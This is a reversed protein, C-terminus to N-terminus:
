GHKYCDNLAASLGPRTQLYDEMRRLCKYKEKKATDAGKFGMVVAIEEMSFRESFLTLIQKCREGLASLLEDLLTRCEQRAIKQDMSEMFDWIRNDEMEEPKPNKGKTKMWRNYICITLYTSLTATRLEFGPSIVANEFHMCVSNLAEHAEEASGGAEKIKRLWAVQWKKYMYEWALERAAGGRRLATLIQADTMDSPIM